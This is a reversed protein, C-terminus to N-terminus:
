FARCKHAFFKAKEAPKGSLRRGLTRNLNLLEYNNRGSREMGLSGYRQVDGGNTEATNRAVRHTRQNKGLALAGEKKAAFRWRNPLADGEQELIQCRGYLLM